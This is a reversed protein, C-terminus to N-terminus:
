SFRCVLNKIYDYLNRDTILESTPLFDELKSINNDTKIDCAVGVEKIRFNSININISQSLLKIKKMMSSDLARNLDDEWLQYNLNEVIKKSLCRGMGISEGFRKHKKAYGGWYYAKLQKLDFLYMDLIGIMDFSKTMKEDYVAFIDSDIIDDSGLIILYDFSEERLTACGFNWKNSLPQNSYNYYNFRKDDAFLEKNSGESDVIVNKFVYKKQFRNELDILSQKYIESVQVRGFTCTLFVVRKITAVAKQFLQSNPNCEVAQSYSSLAAEVKGLASFAEGLRYHSWASSPNLELATEYAAVAEEWNGNKALAEGLYHHHWCFGPNKKIAQHYLSLAEDVKAASLLQNAQQIYSEIM